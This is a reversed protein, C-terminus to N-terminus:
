TSVARRGSARADAAAFEEARDHVLDTYPVYPRVRPPLGPAPGGLNIDFRSQATEPTTASQLNGSSASPPARRELNVGNENITSRGAARHPAEPARAASPQASRSAVPQASRHATAQVQRPAIAQAQRPAPALPQVPRSALHQVSRSAAPPASRPTVPPASRSAVPPVPPRPLQASRAIPTPAHPLDPSRPKDLVTSATLGSPRAGLTTPARPQPHVFISTNPSPSPANQVRHPPLQNPARPVTAPRLVLTPPTIPNTQSSPPDISSPNAASDISLRARKSATTPPDALARKLREAQPDATTATSVNTPCYNSVETSVVQSIAV